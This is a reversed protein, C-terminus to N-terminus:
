TVSCSTVMWLHDYHTPTTNYFIAMDLGSDYKDTLPFGHHKRMNENNEYAVKVMTMLGVIEPVEEYTRYRKFPEITEYVYKDETASENTLKFKGVLFHGFEDIGIMLYPNSFVRSIEEKRVERIRDVEKYEDLIIKCQNLDLLSTMGNTNEGLALMLLEHIQDSSFRTEKIVNGIAKRMENMAYKTQLVKKQELNKAEPVVGQRTLTAMLSSVKVSRITEKDNDSNGREKKYFPSRYCYETRGDGSDETWVKCVAIGYKNVMQFINEHRVRCLVKLGYKFELERVLPFVTASKLTELQQESGFGEYFFRSVTM